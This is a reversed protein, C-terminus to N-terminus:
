QEYNYINESVTYTRPLANDKWSMTVTVTVEDDNHTGTGSDYNNVPTIFVTRKYPTITGRTDYSYSFVGATSYLYGDGSFSSVSQIFHNGGTLSGHPDVYCGGSSLACTDTLPARDPGALWNNAITSPDYQTYSNTDRWNKIYELAEQALYTATVQNRQHISSFLGAQVLALPGAIAIMLISVAILTEILSFGHQNKHINKRM